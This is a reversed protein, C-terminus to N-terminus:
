STFDAPSENFAGWGKEITIPGEIPMGRYTLKPTAIGSLGNFDFIAEDKLDGTNTVKLEYTRLEAQRCFLLRMGRCIM